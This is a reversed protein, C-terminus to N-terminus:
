RKMGKILSLIFCAHCKSLCTSIVKLLLRINLCSYVIIANSDLIGADNNRAKPLAVCFCFNTLAGNKM